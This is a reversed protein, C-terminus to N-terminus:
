LHNLLDVIQTEQLSASSCRQSQHAPITVVPELAVTFSVVLLAIVLVAIVLISKVLLHLLPGYPLSIVVGLAQRDRVRNVPLPPEADAQRRYACM